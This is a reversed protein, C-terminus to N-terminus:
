SLVNPFAGVNGNKNVPLENVQEIDFVKFNLYTISVVVLNSESNLLPMFMKVLQHSNEHIKYVIGDFCM